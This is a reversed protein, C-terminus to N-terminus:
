TAASGLVRLLALLGSPGNVEVDGRAALEPPEEPSRVAIRAAHVLGGDAVLRDLADFAALDGRDDGAFAAAHWGRVLAEVATGKDIGLPPRLECAERGPLAVLGRRDAEARAWASAEAAVEPHGRWHMTVAIGDKREVRLAPWDREIAAAAAAVADRWADVRPDVVAEGDVLREMGYQGVVVLGAVPLRQALFAVPRGSVVAVMGFCLALSGLVETVGPLAAAAGPDRVIPALSGDFDV